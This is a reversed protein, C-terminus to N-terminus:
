PWREYLVIEVSGMNLKEIQEYHAAFYDVQMLQWELNYDDTLDVVLWIRGVDNAIEASSKRRGGMFALADEPKLYAPNEALGFHLPLDAYRLAPAYSHDNTHIILDDPQRANAIYAIVENYPPKTPGGTIYNFSGVIMVGVAAYVLLPLPTRRRGAGWSLLILLFPLAAAMARNPLFFPRTYYVIAPLGVLSLIIIIPLLLEWRFREPPQKWLILGFFVILAFVLFLGVAEHTITRPTGFLLILLGVVPKLPALAFLNADAFLPRLSGTPATTENLLLYIWPTFLGVAGIGLGTTLALGRRNRWKILAHLGIAILLLATFLHTYLAGVFTGFFLLWWRPLATKQGKLYASATLGSLVMWQTYMRLEGSYAIHFPAVATLIVALMALRHSAFLEMALWYVAPLLLIGWYLSLLRLFFDHDPWLFSWYHLLLYYLPPHSSQVANNLILPVPLNAAFYSVAEDFWLSDRQITPLRLILALIVVIGFWYRATPRGFGKLVINRIRYNDSM